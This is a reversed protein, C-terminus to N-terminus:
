IIVEKIFKGPLGLKNKYEFLIATQGFFGLLMKNIGFIAREVRDGKWDRPFLFQTKPQTKRTTM